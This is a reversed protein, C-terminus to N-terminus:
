AFLAFAVLSIIVVLAAGIEIILSTRSSGKDKVRGDNEVGYGFGASWNDADGDDEGQISLWGDSPTIKEPVSTEDAEDIDIDLLVNEESDTTPVDNNLDFVDPMDGIGSDSIKSTIRSFPETIVATDGTVSTM